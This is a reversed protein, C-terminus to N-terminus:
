VDFADHSLKLKDADALRPLVTEKKKQFYQMRKLIKDLMKVTENIYMGKNLMVCEARQALAADTIESRTPVGSKVLTELVQTAWIDPVHAAECIRLIEEQISAFNKWGTEIALDGRAIMVGVPYSQMAKLLILPLNGFGKQTEIKLIIGLRTGYKDLKDLLEQVDNEDNVFSLNVTDANMAVFELDERDKDTLGSVTLNSKPLNIGKDAKLRSGKEGANVINVLVARKMIEEIVGEIKGDDFFVPDNKKVSDFIEPLTCSIHAPVIVKGKDDYRGPEGPLQDRTLILKDGKFLTIYQEAPLLEGVHCKEKGTERETNVELETGSSIYASDSCIGWSGKKQKREISIKCKKNRSDTFWLTSGRRIKQMLSETVPLVADFTKDPAPTGPPAIWLKAPKIVNGTLDREPKIHIVKPGSVVPGTRIKPGALDMMVRCNKKLAKNARDINSIMKGWVEPNDHACNIRASNMGLKILGHVLKYDTAALAPMTVMIRTRRKKSKFGFMQRTNKHLLKESKKISIIGEQKEIKPNGTLHNIITKLGLLSKMVHGEIHALDPLGSMRLKEQLEDIDFCRFALYHILNLANERYLPHVKETRSSYNASLTNAAKIIEEIRNNIEALKQKNKLIVGGRKPLIRTVHFEM